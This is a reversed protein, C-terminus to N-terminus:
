ASNKRSHLHQKSSSTVHSWHTHQWVFPCTTHLVHRALNTSFRVVLWSPTCTPLRCQSAPRSSHKQWCSSVPFGHSEKMESFSSFTSGSPLSCSMSVFNQSRRFMALAARWRHSFFLFSYPRFITCTHNVSVTSRAISNLRSKENRTFCHSASNTRASQSRNRSMIAFPYRCKLINFFSARSLHSRIASLSM